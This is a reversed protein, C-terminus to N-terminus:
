PPVGVSPRAGTADVPKVVVSGPFRLDVSQVRLGRARVADLVQPLLSLREQIGKGAGLRVSIGDRTELIAQGAADIRLAAADSRLPDGLADILGAVRAGLRVDVSPVAAGTQIWPADLRDVRLPLCAGPDAAWAIAVGGSDLLVYGDNVLLAAVPVRERVSVVLRSPFALWVSADALRPDRRLRARIRMANVRFVSDGPHIGARRLIEAAPVATNGTVVVSRLDFMASGPFSAAACLASVVALFRVIRTFVVQRRLDQLVTSRPAVPVADTPRPPASV